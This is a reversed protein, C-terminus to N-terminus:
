TIATQSTQMEAPLDPLIRRPQLKLELQDPGTPIVAEVRPFCTMRIVLREKPIDPIEKELMDHNLCINHDSDYESLLTGRQVHPVYNIVMGSQGSMIVCVQLSAAKKILDVLEFQLDLLSPEAQQEKMDGSYTPLPSILLGPDILPEIIELSEKSYARAATNLDDGFQSQDSDVGPSFYETQDNNLIQAREKVRVFGDYRCLIEDLSKFMDQIHRSLGFGPDKFINQIFLEGLIGNVLYRRHREGTSFEKWGCFNGEAIRQTILLLRRYKTPLQYMPWANAEFENLEFSFYKKSFESIEQQVVIFLASIEALSLPRPKGMLENLLKRATELHTSRPVTSSVDCDSPPKRFPPSPRLRDGNSHNGGSGSGASSSPNDYNDDYPPDQDRMECAKGGASAQAAVNIDPPASRRTRKKRRSSPKEDDVDPDDDRYARDEFAALKRKAPLPIKPSPTTPSDHEADAKDVYARNEFALPKRKKAKTPKLGSQIPLSANLDAQLQAGASGYATQSIVIALVDDDADDESQQYEDHEARAKSKTKGMNTTAAPEWPKSAQKNKKPRTNIAVKPKSPKSEPAAKAKQSGIAPATPETEPVATTAATKPAAIRGSKRVPSSRKAPAM